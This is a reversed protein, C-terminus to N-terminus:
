ADPCNYNLEFFTVLVKQDMILCVQETCESLKLKSIVMEFLPNGTLLGLPIYTKWYDASNTVILVAKWEIAEIPTENLCRRGYVM